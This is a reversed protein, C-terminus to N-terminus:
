LVLAWGQVQNLPLDVVATVSDTEQRATPTVGRHIWGVGHASVPPAGMAALTLALGLNGTVLPQILSM